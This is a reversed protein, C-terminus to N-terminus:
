AKCDVLVKLTVADPAAILDFVGDSSSLPVVQTVVKELEPALRRAYDVAQGFEHHTYVRSGVLTQERFNVEQLNVAHPAKHVGTLCITGGVRALRTMELAASEAGSCEFVVDAGSGGTKGRVREVLSEKTTDVVEFGMGACVALRNADIDSLVISSAGADRLIIATLLGIPGAGMVVASDLVNFRAQHLTRVVVALPEVLAAVRDSVADDVKFLVSEDVWVHEAMGGDCDIGILRLSECVHPTGTRCPRCHGCSILPYAVVRDGIAFRSAGETLKDVRGVFEHGLVLPAKARPHKGAFIGIDSGCVGCLSPAVRVAGPKGAPEPVDRVEVTRPATYVLAKM